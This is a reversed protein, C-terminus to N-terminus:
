SDTNVLDLTDENEIAGQWFKISNAGNEKREQQCNGLNRTVKSFANVLKHARSHM